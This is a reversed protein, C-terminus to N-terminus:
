PLTANGEHKSGSKFILSNARRMKRLALSATLNVLYPDEPKIKKAYTAM